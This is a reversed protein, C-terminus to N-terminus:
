RPLILDLITVFGTSSLEFAVGDGGAGGSLTTGYLNGALDATLGAQPIDGDLGGTFTYLASLTRHDASLKFVTGLNAVGFDVGGGTTTGYLNGAADLAATREPCSSCRAATM